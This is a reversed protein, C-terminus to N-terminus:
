INDSGFSFFLFFFLPSPGPLLPLVFSADECISATSPHIETHTDSSLMQLLSARLDM